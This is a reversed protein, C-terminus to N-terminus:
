RRLKGRNIELKEPAIPYDIHLGQLENPYALDVELMYKHSSNESVFSVDFGDLEKQKLWKFGSRRLYQSRAWGYLNNADLYINVQSVIMM